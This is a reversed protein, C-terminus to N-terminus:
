LRIDRRRKTWITEFKLIHYNMINGINNRSLVLRVLINNCKVQLHSVAFVYIFNVILFRYSNQRSMNAQRIFLQLISPKSDYM